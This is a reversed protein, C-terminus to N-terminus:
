NNQPVDFVRVYVRRRSENPVTINPLTTQFSAGQGFSFQQYSNHTPTDFAVGIELNGPCDECSAFLNVSINTIPTGPTATLSYGRYYPYGVQEGSPVGGGIDSSILWETQGSISGQVDIIVDELDYSSSNIITFDLGPTYELDYIDSAADLAGSASVLGYGVEANWLDTDPYTGVASYTYGSLLVAGRTIAKRVEEQTLVPYQSLVLAAIGSVHPAASSTGGFDTIYDSQSDYGDSGSRDTTAIMVGPAVVDLANGYCSSWYDPSSVGPSSFVVRQADYSIAGVALVNSLTAPFKVAGYNGDLDNGSSCVVVCGKGNRGYTTASQIEESIYPCSVDGNWSCNIVDAGHTRAWIFGDVAADANFVLGIQDVFHFVRIPMIKCGPAVGSVGIGNDKEAAIIGAVATGHKEYASFPGGSGLSNIGDFGTVLNSVLDTHTLDVGTDLVAVIIDSSGETSLWADEVGIDIGSAGYQGINHLGWQISYLPDPSSVSDFYFFDPSTFEFLGTEYFFGSLQIISIATEKNRRVYYIGDEQDACRSVACGYERALDELQSLGSRNRLKVAFEDSTSVSSGEYEMMYSVYKVGQHNQLDMVRETPIEDESASQLILINYDNDEDWHDSRAPNWVKLYSVATLENIFDKRSSADVFCVLILDKKEKLFIKEDFYYYYINGEENPVLDISETENNRDFGSEEVMDFYSCGCLFFLVGLVFFYHVFYRM